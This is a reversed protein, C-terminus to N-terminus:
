CLSKLCYRCQPFWTQLKEPVSLPHISKHLHVNAENITKYINYPDPSADTYVM